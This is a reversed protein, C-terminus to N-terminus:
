HTYFKLQQLFKYCCFLWYFASSLIKALLVWAVQCWCSLLFAFGGREQLIHFTILHVGQSRLNIGLSIHFKWHCVWWRLVEGLIWAQIHSPMRLAWPLHFLVSLHFWIILFMVIVWVHLMMLHFVGVKIKRFFFLVTCKIVSKWPRLVHKTHFGFGIGLIGSM